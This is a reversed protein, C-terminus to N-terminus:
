LAGGFPVVLKLSVNRGMNFVGRRGSDPNVDLYKLRSQHSQYVADFLNNVSVYVSAWTQRRANVLDGGAGVNVLVYGPTATETGYAAMFRNQRQYIEVDTTFYLNRLHQRFRDRTLKLQTLWRNAPMLPLYRAAQRTESLNRGVVMSYGQTLSFWRANRPNYTLTGELGQLRANGQTYRFVPVEGAALSDTGAANQVRASYTYHRISNQFVSVDAYWDPSEYNFGADLQHAVEPVAQQNGIEYRFTGAHVGNSSLEPVTPARFGRSANARLNLRPTLTYVGGLSGSLNQYM